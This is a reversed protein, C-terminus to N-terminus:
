FDLFEEFGEGLVLNEWMKCFFVKRINLDNYLSDIFGSDFLGGFGFYIM